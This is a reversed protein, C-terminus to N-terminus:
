PKWPKCCGGGVGEGSSQYLKWEDERPKVTCLCPPFDRNGSAIEAAIEIMQTSTLASFSEMKKTNGELIQIPSPWSPPM